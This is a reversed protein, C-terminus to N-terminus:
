ECCNNAEGMDNAICYGDTGPEKNRDIICSKVEDEAENIYIKVYNEGSIPEKTVPNELDQDIYNESRLDEIKYYIVKNEIFWEIDSNHLDMYLNAARQIDIYINKLEEESTGDEINGFALTSSVGVVAVIVIVALLELLTFGSKNM